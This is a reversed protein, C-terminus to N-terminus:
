PMTIAPRPPPGVSGTRGPHPEIKPEANPHPDSNSKKGSGGKTIPVSPVGMSSFLSSPSFSQSSLFGQEKVVEYWLVVWSDSVEVVIVIDVEEKMGLETEFVIVLVDILNELSYMTKGVAPVVEASNAAKVCLRM